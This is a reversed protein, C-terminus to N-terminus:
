DNKLQRIIHQITIEALFYKEALIQINFGALYDAYINYNRNTLEQQTTTTTGWPKKNESLRPIYIFEGDIYKQIQTLLDQPLIQTANKYNM